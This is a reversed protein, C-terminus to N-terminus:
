GVDPPKSATKPIEQSTSAAKREAEREVHHERQTHTHTDVNGRRRLVDTIYSPPGGQELTFGVLKM